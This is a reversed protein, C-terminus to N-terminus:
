HRHELMRRAALLVYAPKQVLDLHASDALRRQHHAAALMSAFGGFGGLILGPSATGLGYVALGMGLVALLNSSRKRGPLDFARLREDLGVAEDRLETAVQKAKDDEGGAGLTSLRARLFARFGPLAIAAEQRVQVVEAPTLNQVWPLKVSRVAEWEPQDLPPMDLGDMARLALATARSNVGLAVSGCNGAQSLEFVTGAALRKLNPYLVPKLATLCRRSLEKQGAVSYKSRLERAAKRTTWLIADVPHGDTYQVSDSSVSIAPRGQLTELVVKADGRLRKWLESLARREAARHVRACSQCRSYASRAFRVVGASVLPHLSKLALIDGFYNNLDKHPAEDHALNLTFSDVLIVDDAYLGVTRVFDLAENQRCIPVQCKDAESLPNLPGAAFLSMRASDRPVDPADAYPYTALSGVAQDRVDRLFGDDCLLRHLFEPTLRKGKCEGLVLAVVPPLEM